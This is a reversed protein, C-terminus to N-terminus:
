NREQMRSGDLRSHKGVAGGEVWINATERRGQCVCVCCLLLSYRVATVRSDSTKTQGGRLKRRDGPRGRGPPPLGGHCAAAPAGPVRIPGPDPRNQTAELTGAAAAPGPGAAPKADGTAVGAANRESKKKEKRAKRAGMLNGFEVEEIKQDRIPGSLLDMRIKRGPNGQADGKGQCGPMNFYM